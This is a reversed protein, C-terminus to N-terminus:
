IKEGAGLESVTAPDIKDVAFTRLAKRDMDWGEILWGPETHYENTGHYMHRPFVRREGVEGRYNEYTFKLGIQEGFPIKIM